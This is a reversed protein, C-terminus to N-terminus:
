ETLYLEEANIQAQITYDSTREGLMNSPSSYARVIKEGNTIKYLIM